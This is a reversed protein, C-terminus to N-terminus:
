INVSVYVYETSEGLFLFLFFVFFILLFIFFCSGVVCTVRVCENGRKFLSVKESILFFRIICRQQPHHHHNYIFFNSKRPTNCDWISLVCVFYLM